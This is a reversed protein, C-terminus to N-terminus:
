DVSCPMNAPLVPLCRSFRGEYLTGGRVLKATADFSTRPDWYRGQVDDRWGAATLKKLTQMQMDFEVAYCDELALAPQAISLMAGGILIAFM